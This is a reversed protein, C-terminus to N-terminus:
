GAVFASIRYRATSNRVTLFRRGYASQMWFVDNRGDEVQNLYTIKRPGITEEQVVGAGGDAAGTNQAGTAM